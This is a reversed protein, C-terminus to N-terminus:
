RRSEGGVWYDKAGVAIGNVNVAKDNYNVVISKGQEFTTQYVGEALKRHDAITQSQVDGLVDNLERYKQAAEDIWRRYDASYLHDFETMKIASSDAYFWTYHPASGTELAKLFSFAADQDDAMNWATGAYHIYGHYVLQFFPVSEDTINFGSSTMPANVIHQTFPAAYANGGEMLLELGSGNIKQLQENVLEKAEERDIVNSRNYDGNLKSGLDRLSLGSLQLKGYDDMFGDVMKPLQKPSIVYGPEQEDEQRFNSASYPYIAATKGTIFRSAQSSKKFGDAQPATELLAADPFLSIGNSDAYTKLGSLGKNGGLKRDVSVSKPLDHNMGDNFWGKYRLKIGDIGLEKMQSLVAEAQDFTTLPEYANYPIGLFFKKKPIGGILEVYFPISAEEELKALGAQAILYDRYHMAMGTYSAEGAGLFGYRVTMDGQFPEAQFKKVTSSRWGNTLTVEELNHITFSPSVTNYSNLRGSVDAEVAAVADGKEIIAVFARDEYKMGFVPLRAAEEKQTSVLQSIASDSGYLATRFPATYTKGNNFRILSGSGDPVFTYGEDERGSAGFFPLLSLSQIKMTDPYEIESGPINVVLHEGDLRYDLPIRVNVNGDASEGYAAKDIARQEENYGIADFIGTVKSLGVGRFSSDRREYRKNAEDLKFRKEVERKDGADAIKDLIVTQFREESIYKPIADIDSKVEGLTYVIKVGDNAKEMEFQGSQVSHTYNDYKLSKGAKDFYALEFQVNLKSKNYGTAIADDERNQPNSYWVAGSRKDRVAIETTEPNVYLVLFENEAATEMGDPVNAAAASVAPAKAAAPEAATGAETGSVAAPTNEAYNTGESILLCGTLVVATMSIALRRKM